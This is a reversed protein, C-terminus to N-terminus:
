IKLKGVDTNQKTHSSGIYRFGTKLGVPKCAEFIKDLKAKGINLRAIRSEVSNLRGIM